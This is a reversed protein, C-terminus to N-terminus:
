KMNILSDILYIQGQMSLSVVVVANRGLRFPKAFGEILLQVMPYSDDLKTVGFVMIDVNCPISSKFADVKM